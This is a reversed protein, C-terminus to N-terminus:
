GLLKVLKTKVDAIPIWFMYEGTPNYRNPTEVLFKGHMFKVISNRDIFLMHSGEKNVICYFNKGTAFFKKKRQPIRLIDYPYIIADWSIRREVEVGFGTEPHLLDVGYIDSNDKLTIGESGFWDKVLERTCEDYNNFDEQSFIKTKGIM